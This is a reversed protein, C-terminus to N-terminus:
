QSEKIQALTILDSLDGAVSHAVQIAAARQRDDAFCPDGDILAPDVTVVVTKKALPWWIGASDIALLTVGLDKFYSELQEIRAEKEGVIRRLSLKEQENQKQQRVLEALAEIQLKISQSQESITEAQTAILKDKGQSFM